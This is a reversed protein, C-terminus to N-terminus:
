EDWQIVRRSQYLENELALIHRKNAKNKAYLIGIIILTAVVLLFLNIMLFILGWLADNDESGSFTPKIADGFFAEIEALTVSFPPSTIDQGHADLQYSIQDILTRMRLYIDDYLSTTSFDVGLAYLSELPSVSSGVSLFTLYADVAHEPEAAHMTKIRQAAAYSMAYSYVYHNMYLHSITMWHYAYYDPILISDGYYFSVIELWLANLKDLSLAEGRDASEHVQMEFDALIVQDFFTHYINDLETAYYLLEEESNSAHTQLHDQLYLENLISTVEAPFPPVNATFYPQEKFIYTQHMAHGLEHALTSVSGLDGQYNLLVYVPTGYTGWSYQNSTKFTDPYVDIYGSKLYNTLETHYDEGLPSLAKMVTEVANDYPYQIELETAYSRMLDATSFHEVGLGKQRLKFYDQLLPAQNRASEILTKYTATDIVGDLAAELSSSYGRAQALFVNKQVEAIYISAITNAYDIYPSYFVEIVHNRMAVDDSYLYIADRDITFPEVKGLHNTFNSYSADSLTLQTYIDNPAETLPTALSLIRESSEDLYYDRSRVISLVYSAYHQFSPSNALRILDEDSRELIEPVLFATAESFLTYASIALSKNEISMTHTSDTDLMMSAYVYFQNAKISLAEYAKLAHLLDTDSHLKGKYQSIGEIGQSTFASLEAEYAEQSEFIANLNWETPYTNAFVAASPFLLIFCLVFPLWTNKKM